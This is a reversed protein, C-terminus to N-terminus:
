AQLDLARLTEVTLAGEGLSQARQFRELAERTRAGWVGDPPGVAHGRANLAGQVRRILDPTVARACPAERWDLREPGVPGTKAVTRWEAPVVTTETREPTVLRRKKETRYVAPTAQQEVRAPQDIVRRTVQRTVPPDTFTETRAPRVLVQRAVERTVPPTWVLWFVEGYPDTWVHRPDRPWAGGVLRAPRWDWRGPQVVVPERVTRYEAPITEVRAAGPRVVVTETVTRYTAPVSVRRVREPTVMVREEVDVYQAPVVRTVTREPSVLVRAQYTGLGQPLAV